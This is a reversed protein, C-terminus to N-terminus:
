RGLSPPVAPPSRVGRDWDGMSRSVMRIKVSDPRITAACFTAIPQNDRLAPEFRWQRFAEYVSAATDECGPPISLFRIVAPTGTTDIIAGLTVSCGAPRDIGKEPPKAAVEQTIKPPIIPPKVWEIPGAQRLRVEEDWPDLPTVAVVILHGSKATSAVLATTQDRSPFM